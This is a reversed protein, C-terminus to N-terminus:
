VGRRSRALMVLLTVIVSIIGVFFVLGWGIVGDFTMNGMYVEWSGASFTM